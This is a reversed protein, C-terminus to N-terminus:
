MKSFHLIQKKRYTIYKHTENDSIITEDYDKLKYLPFHTDGEYNKNILTVHILNCYDFFLNYIEGGGIVIVRGERGKQIESDRLKSIKEFVNGMNAAIWDHNGYEQNTIVVHIRNKLKPLSEFTKRGMVIINHETMKRFYKLDDPIYWPITNNIGIVGNKSCAVIMEFNEM